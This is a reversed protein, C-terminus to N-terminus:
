AENKSLEVDKDEDEDDRWEGENDSCICSGHRFCKPKCRRTVVKVENDRRVLIRVMKIPEPGYPSYIDDTEWDPYYDGIGISGIRGLFTEVSTCARSSLFRNDFDHEYVQIYEGDCDRYVTDLHKDTNDHDEDEDVNGHDEDEDVNDHDKDKRVINFWKAEKDIIWIGEGKRYTYRHDYARQDLLSALYGRASNEYVLDYKSDPLDVLWSSDFEFAVNKLYLRQFTPRGYRNDDDNERDNRKYLNLPM